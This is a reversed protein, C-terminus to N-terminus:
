LSQNLLLYKNLVELKVINYSATGLKGVFILFGFISARRQKMCQEPEIPYPLSGNGQEKGECLQLPPSLL